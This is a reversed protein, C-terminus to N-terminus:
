ESKRVVPPEAGLGQELKRQILPIDKEEPKLALAHQWQFRAENQRGVRWYADGLHDNITAQGPELEVAKELYRVADEYRGLKYYAWGLSDVIYGDDPRAAAAKRLMALAEDINEGREVWSYALYNMVSPADPRLRLATKLDAEAEPWRGARENAIGRTYFLLWHQERPKGVLGIAKTYVAIADEFKEQSRFVDGLVAYTDIDEATGTLAQELIRRAEDTRELRVLARARQQRTVANLPSTAPLRAYTAVAEEDRGAVEFRDGLLSLSLDNDPDLALALQLFFVPLEFAKDEAASSAIGYLTEALGERADAVIRQLPEGRELRALNHAIVPNEPYTALFKRFLDKAEATAGMRALQSGYAELVRLSGGESQSNAQELNSLAERSQGSLDEILGQHFRMFITSGGVSELDALAARAEAINGEAFWSWATGVRAAITAAPDGKVRAFATRARLYGADRFAQIGIVLNALRADPMKVVLDRAVSAAGDLNGASVEALVAREMLGANQPDFRLANRYHLAAAATDREGAAHRAALYSGFRTGTDTASAPAPPRLSSCQTFWLVIGCNLATVLVIWRVIRGYSVM